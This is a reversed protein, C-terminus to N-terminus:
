ILGALLLYYLLLLFKPGVYLLHDHGLRNYWGSNVSRVLYFSLRSREITELCGPVM